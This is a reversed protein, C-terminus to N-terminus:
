GASEASGLIDGEEIVCTRTFNLSEAIGISGENALIAGFHITKGLDFGLECLKSVVRKGLGRGREKPHVIVGIDAVDGYYLFSAAALCRDEEFFGVILPDDCGIEGLENDRESCSNKLDLLDKHNEKEIVKINEHSLPQFNERKLFFSHYIELINFAENHDLTSFVQNSDIGSFTFENPFKAIANTSTRFVQFKGERYGNIFSNRNKLFQEVEFGLRSAWHILVKENQEM